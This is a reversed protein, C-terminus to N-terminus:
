FYKIIDRKIKLVGRNELAIQDVSGSLHGEEQLATERNVDEEHCKEKRCFQANRVFVSYLIGSQPPNDSQYSKHFNAHKWKKFSTEYTKLLINKQLKQFIKKWKQFISDESFENKLVSVACDVVEVPFDFFSVVPQENM